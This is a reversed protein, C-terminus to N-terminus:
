FINVIQKSMKKELIPLAEELKLNMKLAEAFIKTKKEIYNAAYHQTKQEQINDHLEGASDNSRIPGAFSNMFGARKKDSIQAQGMASSESTEVSQKTKQRVVVDVVMRYIEDETLKGVLGGVAAAALGTVLGDRGGGSMTGATAGIAGATGAARASNAEKLNDAFLINAMLIYKAKDPDDVVQYGKKKLGAIVDDELDIDNESTNKISVFVTRQSKAVPDLFISRTMKTKTQLETTACGTFLVTGFLIPIVVRKFM